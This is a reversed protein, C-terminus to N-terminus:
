VPAKAVREVEYTNEHRQVSCSPINMSRHITLGVAITTARGQQRLTILSLLTNVTNGKLSLSEKGLNTLFAEVGINLYTNRNPKSFLPNRLYQCAM